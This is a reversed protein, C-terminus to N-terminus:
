RAKKPYSSSSTRSRGCQDPLHRRVLGDVGLPRGQGAADVYEQEYYKRVLPRQKKLWDAAKQWDAEHSTEPNVGIACLASSPLDETDGFMGIKGKLAPDLLDNWSTIKKGVKKPDYGIGTIGSQWAMTYVNGRDYSPDKVLESAYPYFNSMKTQDLPVLFDLQVLKDLLAREHDGDPRLRHGAAGRPGAPDQRLLVRSGPHGRQVQGQHRDAEHVPRHTPHGSEKDSVDIYLPWNAFDLQGTNKAHDALVERDGSTGPQSRTRETPAGPISCGALALGSRRCGASSCAQRRSFRPSTLGRLLDPPLQTPRDHM